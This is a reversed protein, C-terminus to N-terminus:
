ARQVTSALDEIALLAAPLEGLEDIRADPLPTRDPAADDRELWITRLGAGRAGAVDRELSDGVMVADSASAGIRDLAAGFIRRDPKGIGLEASIVVAAFYRGLGTAALKERQVDPAGNTVLALHYRPALAELTPIAVPDIAWESRRARVYTSVLDRALADDAVGASALVNTWVALRFAPGFARLARLGPADGDFDGWLAEGWWIGMEDAYPFVPSARFLQEATSAAAASIAAPDADIRRAARESTRRIASLTADDELLLTNDLDLLVARVPM